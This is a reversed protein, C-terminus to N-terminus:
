GEPLVTTGGAVLSSLPVLKRTATLWPANFRRTEGVTETQLFSVFLRLWQDREVKLAEVEDWRNDKIALYVAVENALLQNYAEIWSSDLADNVTGPVAPRKSFFFRLSGSIPDGANGAPFYNPGMQYVAPQMGALLTRDDFPVIGIETGDTTEIRYVSEADEPRPWGGNSMSVLRQDGFIVPNIRAALSYLGRMARIVVYLLETEETGVTKPINKRSRSYAAELIAMPSTTVPM